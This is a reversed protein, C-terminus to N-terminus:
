ADDTSRYIIKKHIPILMSGATDVATRANYAQEFHQSSGAKMIRSEEDTFNFQMDDPPTVSPPQSDNGKQKKGNKRQEDRVAKEVRM